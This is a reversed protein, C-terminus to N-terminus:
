HLNAHKAHAFNCLKEHKDSYEYQLLGFYRLHRLLLAKLRYNICCILLQRSCFLVFTDVVAFARFIWIGSITIQVTLSIYIM